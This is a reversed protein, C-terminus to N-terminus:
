DARSEAERFDPNDLRVLGPLALKPSVHATLGAGAAGNRFTQDRYLNSIRHDLLVVYPM